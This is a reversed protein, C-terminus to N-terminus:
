GMRRWRRTRRKKQSVTCPWTSHIPMSQSLHQTDLDPKGMKVWQNMSGDFCWWDVFNDHPFRSYFRCAAKLYRREMKRDWAMFDGKSQKPGFDFGTSDGRRYDRIGKHREHKATRSKISM